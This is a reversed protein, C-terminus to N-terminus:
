PLEALTVGIKTRMRYIDNDSCKYNNVILSFVLPEGGKTNVYGSMSQVWGLNGTKARLNGEAATGRMSFYLTGDGGAVPLSDLWVKSYPSKYMYKLITVLARPSVMDARSLGSGDQINVEDPEVGIKKLYDIEASIGASGTGRGKVQAGLTRLLSEAMVNISHRNINELISSLPESEHRTILKAGDPAKDLKVKGEVAIGRAKLMNMFVDGIWVTPDNVSLTTTDPKADAAIDGGCSVVNSQRQRWAWVNSKSGAATTKPEGEVKFCTAAPEFGVKAAEGEKGPKVVVTICNHNLCLAGIPAAYEAPEYDWSWGWGFRQGDFYSDDAVVDGTVRTIGAAKVADAMQELGKTDLSSDGYGKLILDGSLVGDKPESSALVETKLMFDPGLADLTASTVILKMCSAPILINTANHSYLVRGDKLSEIQLGIFGRKVTDAHIIDDLKKALENDPSAPDHHAFAACSMAFILAFVFALRCIKM